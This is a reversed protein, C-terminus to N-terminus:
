HRTPSQSASCDLEGVPITKLTRTEVAARSVRDIALRMGDLIHHHLQGALLKELPRWLQRPYLYARYNTTLVVETGEGQRRFQYSGDTAQICGEIGLHQEIVEFRVLHPPESTLIRKTLGGASYTCHVCAGVRAKDGETAVPQPLLLRLLFSPRGPVDEYFMTHNWVTEPIAHLHVRTALSENVAERAFFRSALNQLFCIM